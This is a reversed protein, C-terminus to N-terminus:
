QTIYSATFSTYGSFKHFKKFINRVRQEFINLQSHSILAEPQDPVVCCDCTGRVVAKERWQLRTRASCSPLGGM